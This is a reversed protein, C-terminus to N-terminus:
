REIISEIGKFILVGISAQIIALIVDIIDIM